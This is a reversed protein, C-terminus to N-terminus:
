KMIFTNEIELGEKFEQAKPENVVKGNEIIFSRACDGWVNDISPSLDVTVLNTTGVREQSPSYERGSVSLCSRSGLLVFAPVNHYWTNNVGYAALLEIAKSAISEETSDCTIETELDRLVRKAICQVKSYKEINM